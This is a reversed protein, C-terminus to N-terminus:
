PRIAVGYAFRASASRSSGPTTKSPILITDPKSEPPYEKLRFLHSRYSSEPVGLLADLEPLLAAPIQQALSAYLGRVARRCQAGLQRTFVAARPLVVCGQRLRREAQQTVEEISLGSLAAPRGTRLSRHFRVV